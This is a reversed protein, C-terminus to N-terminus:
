APRGGPNYVNISKIMGDLPIGSSLDLDDVDVNVFTEFPYSADAVYRVENDTSVGSYSLADANRTAAAGSTAIRSSPVSGTTLQAHYVTTTGTATASNTNTTMTTDIAPWITLKLDNTAGNLTPMSIAVRWYVSNSTITITGGNGADAAYTTSAGTSTNLKAFVADLRTGGSNLTELAFGPFRTTDSDKKVDIYAVRGTSKDTPTWQLIIGKYNGSDSDTLDQGSITAKNGVSPESWSNWDDSYSAENTAQAELLLGIDGTIASGTAETVVGSVNVTNGNQTTFAQVGNANLGHAISFDVWEGPNQNSQDTVDEVQVETMTGTITLTLTTSGATEPTGSNFSIRNSGDATLTASIANSLVCTDGNGGAITVQYDNGSVVTISHTSLSTALNRVIRAGQMRACNNPVTVVSDEHDNLTGDTTRTFTASAGLSVDSEYDRTFIPFAGAGSPVIIFNNFSYM